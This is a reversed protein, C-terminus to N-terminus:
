PRCLVSKPPLKPGRSFRTHANAGGGQGGGGFSGEPICETNKEALNMLLAAYCVGGDEGLFGLAWCLIKLRIISGLKIRIAGSVTRNM